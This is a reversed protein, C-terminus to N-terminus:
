PLVKVKVDVVELLSSRTGTLVAVSTSAVEVVVGELVAVTM